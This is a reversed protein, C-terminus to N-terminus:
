RMKETKRVMVKGGLKSEIKQRKLTKNNLSGGSPPATPPPEPPLPAPEEKIPPLTPLSASLAATSAAEGAVVAARTSEANFKNISENIQERFKKIKEEFDQSNIDAKWIDIVANPKSKELTKFYSDYPKQFQPAIETVFLTVKARLESFNSSTKKISTTILEIMDEELENEKGLIKLISYFNLIYDQLTM